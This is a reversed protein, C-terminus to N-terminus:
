KERRSKVRRVISKISFLAVACVAALVLLTPLAYVFDLAFDRCGDVFDTWSERFAISIQEGFSKPAQIIETYEVVEDLNLHVTSYSVQSDYRRLTGTYSEIEYRVESLRQELTILYELETAKELMALLREEEIKLTEIRTDVDYYQDTIDNINSSESVININGGLGSRFADLKDAPIRLTYNASRAIVSSSYRISGGSRSSSEIYGGLGTCLQELAVTANDFAKTEANIRLTRIIKRQALPDGSPDSTDTMESPADYKVTGDATSANSVYGLSGGSEAEYFYDFKSDSSTMMDNAEAYSGCSACTLSTVMLMTVALLAPFIRKKM